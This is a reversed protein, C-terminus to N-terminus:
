QNLLELSHYFPSNDIEGVIYKCRLCHFYEWHEPYETMNGTGKYEKCGCKPCFAYPFIERREYMTKIPSGFRLQSILSKIKRKSMRRGLIIKKHKRPVKEDCWILMFAKNIGNM